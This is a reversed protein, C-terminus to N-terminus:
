GPSDKKVSGYIVAAGVLALPVFCFLGLFDGRQNIDEQEDRNHRVTNDTVCVDDADMVETGCKVGADGSEPLSIFALAGFFLLIALGMLVGAIRAGPTQPEGGPAAPAVAPGAAPTSRGSGTTANASRPGLDPQAPLALGIDHALGVIGNAYGEGLHRVKWRGQHRYLEVPMVLKEASFGSSVAVIETSGARVVTRIERGAFGREGASVVVVVRAIAPDVLNPDVRVAGEEVEVAGDTSREGGPVVLDGAARLRGTDDLCVAFLQPLSGNLLGPEVEVRGEPLM